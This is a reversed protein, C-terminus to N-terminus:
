SIYAKLLKNNSVKNLKKISNQYIQRVREHTLNLKEAVQSLTHEFEYGMGCVMKIITRDRESLTNLAREIEITLSDQMVKKDTKEANSNTFIDYLTGNESDSTMPKDFSVASNNSIDLLDIIKEESLEMEDAIYGVDPTYHYEQEFNQIIKNMKSIDNIKNLPLDVTRGNENIAQYMYKLIYNIAHTSYRVGFDPNFDDLAVILGINGESILDALEVGRGQKTKAVSVVFRTYSLILKDKSLQDGSKAKIILDKEQEKTLPNCVDKSIDKLYLDIENRNLIDNNKKFTTLNKM